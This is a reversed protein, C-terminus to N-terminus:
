TGRWRGPLWAHAGVPRSIIFSVIFIGSGIMSGAVLMTSDLLGLGRIFKGNTPESSPLMRPTRTPRASNVMLRGRPAVGFSLRERGPALTSNEASTDLRRRIENTLVLKAASKTHRAIAGTDRAAVAPARWYSASGRM